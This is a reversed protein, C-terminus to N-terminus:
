GMAHYLQGQIRFTRIGDTFRVDVHTRLSTFAFAQNYAPINRYFDPRLLLTNLQEPLEQYPPLYLKGAKCCNNSTTKEQFKRAQRFECILTMDGIDKYNDNNNTEQNDTM